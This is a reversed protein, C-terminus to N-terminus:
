NTWTDMWYHQSGVTNYFRFGPFGFMQGSPTNTFYLTDKTEYPLTTSINFAARNLWGIADINPPVDGPNIGRDNIYIPDAALAALVAFLSLGGTTLLQKMSKTLIVRSMIDVDSEWPWIECAKSASIIRFSSPHIPRDTSLAGCLGAPCSSMTSPAPIAM